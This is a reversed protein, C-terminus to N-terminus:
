IMSRWVSRPRLCLRPRASSPSSSCRQRSCTFFTSCRALMYVGVTGTQRSDVRVGAHLRGTMARGSAASRASKGTAGIFLLVCPPSAAPSSACRFPETTMHGITALASTLGPKDFFSISPAGAGSTM